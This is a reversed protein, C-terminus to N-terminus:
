EDDRSDLESSFGSPSISDPPYPYYYQNPSGSRGSAGGGSTSAVSMDHLFSVNENGVNSSLPIQPKFDSNQM